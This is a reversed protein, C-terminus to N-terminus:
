EDDEDEWDFSAPISKILLSAYTLGVAGVITLAIAFKHIKNM